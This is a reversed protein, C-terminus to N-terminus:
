RKGQLVVHLDANVKLELLAMQLSRSYTGSQGLANLM